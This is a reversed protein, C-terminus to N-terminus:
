EDQGEDVVCRITTAGGWLDGGRYANTSDLALLNPATFNITSQRSVRTTSFYHGTIGPSSLGGIVASSSYYSPINTRMGAAPFFLSNYSRDLPNYMLRGMYAVTSFGTRVADGDLYRRDFFGDAYYGWISYLADFDVYTMSNNITSSINCGLSQIMESDAM